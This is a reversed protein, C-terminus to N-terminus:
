VRGGAMVIQNGHNSAALNAKPSGTKAHHVLLAPHSPGFITQITDYFFTGLGGRGTHECTFGHDITHTTNLWAWKPFTKTILNRSLM